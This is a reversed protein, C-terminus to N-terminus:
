FDLPEKKRSQEMTFLIRSLAERTEEPSLKERCVRAELAEISSAAEQLAMQCEKMTEMCRNLDEALEKFLDRKRLVIPRDPMRGAAAERLVKRVRYVPGAIRHTYLLSFVLAVLQFAGLVLLVHVLYRANVQCVLREELFVLFFWAAALAVALGVVTLNLAIRVLHGLQFPGHILYHRRRFIAKM